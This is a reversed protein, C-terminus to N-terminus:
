LMYLNRGDRQVVLSRPYVYYAREAILSSLYNDNDKMHSFTLANEKSPSLTALYNPATTTFV